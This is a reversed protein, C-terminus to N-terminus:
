SASATSAWWGRALSSARRLAALQELEDRDGVDIAPQARIGVLQRTPHPLPHHDRHREGVVGVQQDGVLRRGREVHRDLGLDEVHEGADLAFTLEGHQEDGVVEADDGPHGLPHVHHVGAPDHLVRRHDVHEVAGFWGYVRPNSAHRGRSSPRTSRWGIPPAGGPAPRRGCRNRTGGASGAPRPANGRRRARAGPTRTWPRRRAVECRQRRDACRDTSRDLDPWSPWAAGSASRRSLVARQADLVEHLRVRQAAAQESSGTAPDLGHGVHREVDGAALREAEDALRPAALARDRAADGAEDLRVGARYRSSPVSRADSRASGSRRSRRRNWITKWSGCADSLGRMVTACSIASGSSTWWM